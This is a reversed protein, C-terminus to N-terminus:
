KTRNKIKILIPSKRLSMVIILFLQIKKNINQDIRMIKNISEKYNTIEMTFDHNKTTAVIQTADELITPIRTLM